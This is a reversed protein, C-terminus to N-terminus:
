CNGNQNSYVTGTEYDLPIVQSWYTPDSGSGRWYRGAPSAVSNTLSSNPLLTVVAKSNYGLFYSSNTALTLVVTQATTVPNATLVNVLLNTSTQNAAFTVSAPLAAYNVGAVATGTITYNLTIANSGGSRTITFVGPTPGLGTAYPSVAQVNM